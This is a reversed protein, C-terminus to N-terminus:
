EIMSSSRRADLAAALMRRVADPERFALGVPLVAIAALADAPLGLAELRVRDKETTVPVLGERRAERLLKSVEGAGFGHHDPFARTRVLRAGCAELTRFFKRPHGIGAFALVPKGALGVAAAPDPVLRAALVPLGRAAAEGAVRAGAAGEDVVIVADARPWQAAMPARLPGAPIVRGNGLGTAGDVVVLSLDKNLSPNQFGDDMVVVTGRLAHALAAGAPRDRAVVAPGSRALLPPEDGVEDPGHRGAEVALPGPLRGGHGRSLFVPREGAERLLAALALATPTKGAGGATFNGVCVVPLAARGGARGMRRGAVAGYALAVPALLRWLPSPAERWWFAPARM